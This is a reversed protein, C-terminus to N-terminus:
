SLDIVDAIFLTDAMPMTPIATAAVKTWISPPDQTGYIQAFLGATENVPIGADSMLAEATPGYLTEGLPDPPLLVFHTEPFFRTTTYAGAANQTRTKADYTAIVPLDMGQLLNNLMSLSIARTTGESGYIMERIQENKLLNAVVTNSTLARTPKIGTDDVIQQVWGQIDTIPVATSAASWLATTELTDKHDESVGYDVTMVVGNEAITLKGTSIAEMRFAEIRDYVSAILRDLDNFVERKVIDIDGLGERRLAIIYREDLNIKRKIPPIEGKVKEIGERSAIPTESGYAQVTAMVPLRNASKFYEFDLDQINQSPFLSPGVYPRPQAARAYALTTKVNFFDLLEKVMKM